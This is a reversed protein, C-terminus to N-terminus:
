TQRGDRLATQGVALGLTRSSGTRCLWRKVPDYTYFEPAQLRRILRGSEAEWLCIDGVRDAATITQGDPSVAVTYLATAFGEPTKLAHGELTTQLEGSEADRIRVLMDDGATAIRNGAPFAVVDRIWGHHAEEVVRTTEGTEVATWILQRDFGGSIVTGESWVLSSVYNNHSTWAKAATPKEAKLDVRYVSHDTGAGYLTQSDADVCLAFLIGPVECSISLEIPEPKKPKDDKDAM